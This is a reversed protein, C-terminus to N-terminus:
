RSFMQLQIDCLTEYECIWVSNFKVESRRRHRGEQTNGVKIFLKKIIPRVM